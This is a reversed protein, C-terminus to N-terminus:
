DILCERIVALGPFASGGVVTCAATGCACAYRVADLIAPSEATLNKTVVEHIFGASFADGVGVTDMVPGDPAEKCLIRIPRLDICKRMLLAGDAAMTIIVCKCGLDQSLTRAAEVLEEKKSIGQAEVTNCIFFDVLPIVKEIEGGWRSAYQPNLSVTNLGVRRCTNIFDVLESGWIGPCNYYGGIHLHRTGTPVLKTMPFDSIKFVQNGGRFTIFSRDHPGSLCVCKGTGWGMRDQEVECILQDDQEDFSCMPTENPEVLILDARKISHELVQTFADRSSKSFTRPVTVRVGESLHNLWIATNLASGGAQLLIDSNLVADEGWRPLHSMGNAVIDCFMDGIVTIKAANKRQRPRSEMISKLAMGATTAVVLALPLQPPFSDM